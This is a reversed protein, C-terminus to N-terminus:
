RVESVRQRLLDCSQTRLCLISDNRLMGTIQRSLGRLVGLVGGGRRENATLHEEVKVM